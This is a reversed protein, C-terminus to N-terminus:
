RRLWSNEQSGLKPPPPAAHGGPQALAQSSCPAVLMPRRRVWVDLLDNADNHFDLRLLSKGDDSSGKLQSFRYSSM